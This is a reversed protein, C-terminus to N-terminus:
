IYAPMSVYKEFKAIYRLIPKILYIFSIVETIKTSSLSFFELIYNNQLHWMRKPMDVSECIALTLLPIFSLAVALSIVAFLLGSNM